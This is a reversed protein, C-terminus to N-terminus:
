FHYDLTSGIFYRKGIEASRIFEDLPITGFADSSVYVSYEDCYTNKINFVLVSLESISVFESLEMSAAKKCQSIFTLYAKQFYKEKGGPKIIFSNESEFEASRSLIEKLCQIDEARDTDDSVYDAITYTFWHDLFNDALLYDEELIPKISIQYIRSHSM